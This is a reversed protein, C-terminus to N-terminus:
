DKSSLGDTHSFAATELGPQLARALKRASRPIGGELGTQLPNDSIERLIPFLCLTPIDSLLAM